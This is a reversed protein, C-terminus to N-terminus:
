SFYAMMGLFLLVYSGAILPIFFIGSRKLSHWARGNLNDGSIQIPTVDANNPWVKWDSPLLEREDAIRKELLEHPQGNYKGHFGLLLCYLYVMRVPTNNKIEDLRSFFLEGGISTQFLHTQLMSGRWKRVWPLSSCLVREDFWVVVAFLTNNCDDTDHNKEANNSAVEFLSLSEQRFNSYDSYKDSNILFETAFRFVPLYCDILSMM